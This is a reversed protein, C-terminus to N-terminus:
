VSKKKVLSHRCALIDVLKYISEWTPLYKGVSSVDYVDKM